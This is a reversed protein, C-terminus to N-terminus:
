ISARVSRTRATACPLGGMVLGLILNLLAVISLLTDPVRAMVARLSVLALLVGPLVISLLGEVRARAAALVVDREGPWPARLGCILNDSRRLDVDEVDRLPPRTWAPPVGLAAIYQARGVMARFMALALGLEALIYVLPGLNTPGNPDGGRRRNREGVIGGILLYVFYAVPILWITTKM